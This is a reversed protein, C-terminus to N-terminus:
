QLEKIMRRSVAQFGLAEYFSVANENFEFVNLEISGAGKASAWAQMQEMLMKGIGQQQYGSKVVISDVFVYRRPAFVRVAAADKVFAHVVGVLQEGAEAVLLAVNEDAMLGALYDKERAAGDPKRFIHPLKARHLVDIEAFLACLGDYDADTAQRIRIHM